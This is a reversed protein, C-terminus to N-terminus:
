HIRLVAPLECRRLPTEDDSAHDGVGEEVKRALVKGHRLRKHQLFPDYGHIREPRHERHVAHHVTQAPEHVSEPRVTQVPADEHAYTKRQRCQHIEKEPTRAKRDKEGYEPDHVAPRLSHTERRARPHEGVPDM